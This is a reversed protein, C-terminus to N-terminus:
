FSYAVRLAVQSITGSKAWGEYRIGAELGGGFVYGVAPAYAFATGGGNNLFAAGVQAEGFFGAPSGGFRAGVKVPVVGENPVKGSVTITTTGDSESENITKGTLSTYGASLSISVNPAVPYSYKLDGGIAFSYADKADGVPLGANVGISFKGGGSSSSSGTSTTQAFLKGSIACLFTAFLLIKKM